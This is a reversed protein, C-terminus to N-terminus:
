SYAPSIRSISVIDPDYHICLVPPGNGTPGIVHAEEVGPRAAIASTLRLMCADAVNSVEPLVLPIDLKLKANM